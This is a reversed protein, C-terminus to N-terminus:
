PQVASGPKIAEACVVAADIYKLVHAAQECLMREVSKSIVDDAALSKISIQDANQSIFISVAIDSM